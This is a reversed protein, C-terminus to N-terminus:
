LYICIYINIGVFHQSIAKEAGKVLYPHNCCKRLEMALNTLRPGDKAEGIYMHKHIHMFMCTHVFIMYVFVCVYIYIHIYGYTFVKIYFPQIKNM